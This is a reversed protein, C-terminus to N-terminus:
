VVKGVTEVVEKPILSVGFMVIGLVVFLMGLVVLALRKYINVQGVYALAAATQNFPDTIAKTMANVSSALTDALAKFGQPLELGSVWSVAPATVTAPTIPFSASGPIVTGGPVNVIPPNLAGQPPIIRQSPDIAGSPFSQALDGTATAWTGAFTGKSKAFQLAYVVQAQWTSPDLVNIGANIADDGLGHENADGTVHQGARLQMPGFSTPVAGPTGKPVIAGNPRRALIKTGAPYNLWDVYYDGQSNWTLGSEAKAVATALWTPIGLKAATEGIFNGVESPSPM